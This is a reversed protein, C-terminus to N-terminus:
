PFAQAWGKAHASLTIGPVRLCGSRKDSGSFITSFFDTINIDNTIKNIEILYEEYNMENYEITKSIITKELVYSCLKSMEINANLLYLLMSTKDENSKENAGMFDLGKRTSFLWNFVRYRTIIEEHYKM